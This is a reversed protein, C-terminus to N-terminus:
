AVWGYLTLDVLKHDMVWLGIALAMVCDDHDGEPASYQYHGSPMRRYRFIALENPLPPIEAYRFERGDKRAFEAALHMIAEQKSPGTTTFPYAPCGRRQLEQYLAIGPGNDEIVM